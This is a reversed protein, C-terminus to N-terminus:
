DRLYPKGHHLEYVKSITREHLERDAKSKHGGVENHKLAHKREGRVDQAYGRLAVKKLVTQVTDQRNSMNADKKIPQHLAEVGQASFKSLSGHRMVMDYIHTTMIHMYPTVAQVGGLERISAVLADALLRLRTAHERKSSESADDCGLNVVEKFLIMLEWVLRSQKKIEDEIFGDVRM